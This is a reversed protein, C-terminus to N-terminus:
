GAGLARRKLILLMQVLLAKKILTLTAAIEYWNVEWTSREHFRWSDGAREGILFYLEKGGGPVKRWEKWEVRTLVTKKGM